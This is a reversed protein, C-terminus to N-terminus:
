ISVFSRCKWLGLSLVFGQGERLSGRSRLASAPRLGKASSVAEKEMGSLSKNVSKISANAGAADVQIVLDLKNDAAM